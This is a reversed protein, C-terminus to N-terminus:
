NYKICVITSCYLYTLQLAQCYHYLLNQNHSSHNTEQFLRFISKTVHRGIESSQFTLISLNKKGVTIYVQYYVYNKM